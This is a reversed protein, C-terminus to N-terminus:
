NFKRMGSVGTVVYECVRASGIEAEEDENLKNQRSLSLNVLILYRRAFM